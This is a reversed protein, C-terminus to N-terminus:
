VAYFTVDYTGIGTNNVRLYYRYDRGVPLSAIYAPLEVLDSYKHYIRIALIPRDRCIVNEAGKLSAAESGEIDMAIVAANEDGLLTDITTIEIKEGDGNESSVSATGGTGSIYATIEKDATGKKVPIVFKHGNVSRCLKDYSESLPELAYIRRSGGLYHDFQLASKGDFAGCEVVAGERMGGFMLGLDYDNEADTVFMRLRSADGSIKANLYETMIRRSLADELMDYTKEFGTINGLIYEYPMWDLEDLFVAGLTIVENDPTFKLSENRIITWEKDYTYNYAIILFAEPYRCVCEAPTIVPLGCIEQKDPTMYKEDLVIFGPEIGFRPLAGCLTKAYIGGGILGIERKSRSLRELLDLVRNKKYVLREKLGSM